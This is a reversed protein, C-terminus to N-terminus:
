ASHRPLRGPVFFATRHDNAYPDRQVLAVARLRQRHRPQQRRSCGRREDRPASGGSRDLAIRGAAGSRSLRDFETTVSGSNVTYALGYVAFNEASGEPYNITVDQWNVELEDAVIQALATGIHQGMESKVVHISTHGNPMMTFWISPTFAEATATAAHAGRSRRQATFGIGLALGSGTAMSRVMFDRRSLQTDTTSMDPRAEPSRPPAHSRASSAQIPQAGACTGTWLRSSKTRPQTFPQGFDVRGGAHDARVPLLRVTAGANRDMGAAGSATTPTICARSPPSRHGRSMVLRFWARDCQKAMSTFLAPAACALAAGTNREQSLRLEERIIWLLPTDPPADVLYSYGNITLAVM